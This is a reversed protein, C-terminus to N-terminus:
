IQESLLRSSEEELWNSYRLEMDEEWRKRDNSCINRKNQLEISQQEDEKLQDLEQKKAAAKSFFQETTASEPASQSENKKKEFATEPNILINLFTKFDNLSLDTTAIKKDLYLRNAQLSMIAALMMSVSLLLGKLFSFGFFHLVIIGVWLPILYMEFPFVKLRSSSGAARDYIKQPLFSLDENTYLLIMLLSGGVALVATLFPLDLNVIVSLAFTILLGPELTKFGECNQQKLYFNEPMLTLIRGCTQCTIDKKVKEPKDEVQSSCYPCNGDVIKM